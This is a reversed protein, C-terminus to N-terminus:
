FFINQLIYLTLILYVIEKRLLGCFIVFDEGDIQCKSGEKMDYEVRTSSLFQRRVKNVKSCVANSIAANIFFVTTM